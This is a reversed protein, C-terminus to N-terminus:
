ARPSFAKTIGGVRAEQAPPRALARLVPGAEDLISVAGARGTGHVANATFGCVRCPVDNPRRPAGRSTGAAGVPRLRHDGPFSGIASVSARRVRKTRARSPARPGPPPGSGSGYASLRSL